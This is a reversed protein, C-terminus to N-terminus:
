ALARANRNIAQHRGLRRLVMDRSPSAPENSDDSPPDDDLISRGRRLAPSTLHRPTVQGIHPDDDSSLLQRGGAPSSDNISMMSDDSGFDLMEPICPSGSGPSGPTEPTESQKRVARYIKVTRVAERKERSLLQKFSPVEVAEMLMTKRKKPTRTPTPTFLSKSTNPKIAASISKTDPMFVDDEQLVLDSENSPSGSTAQTIPVLAHTLRAKKPSKEEIDDHGSLRRKKSPSNPQSHVKVSVPSENEKEVRRRKSPSHGSSSDSTSPRRSPTTPSRILAFRALDPSLNPRPPSSVKTRTRNKPTSLITPSELLPSPGTSSPFGAIINMFPAPASPVTLPSVARIPETQASINDNFPEGLCPRDDNDVNFYEQVKPPWATSPILKGCSAYEWFDNFTDLVAAPKDMRGCFIAELLTSLAEFIDETQPVAQLGLMIAQYLPLVDLAYDDETMTRFEDAIWLVLGEQMTEMLNFVLHVPCSEIFHVVSRIMWMMRAYNRPEPPYSSRFTDTVFEVFSEPVEQADSLSVKMLMMEVVRTLSSFTTDCRGGISEVLQNVVCLADVGYDLAKDIALALLKDWVTLEQGDMDWAHQEGFPVSLLVLAGEWSACKSSWVKVFKSWVVSRAEKTWTWVWPHADVIVQYGWFAKLSDPECSVSLEACFMAWQARAVGEVETWEEENKMLSALLKEAYMDLSDNDLANKAYAWLSRMMNLRKGPSWRSQQKPRSTDFVARQSGSKSSEPTAEARLERDDRLHYRNGKRRDLEGECIARGAKLLCTWTEEIVDLHNEINEGVSVARKWLSFFEDLVEVTLEEKTLPRVDNIGPCQNLIPRVTKQLSEFDNLLLGGDTHFLKDPLLQVSHWGAPLTELSVLQSIILMADKFESNKSLMNGLVVFTRRLGDDGTESGVCAAVTSVGSGMGVVSQVVKWLAARLSDGQKPSGSPSSQPSDETESEGEPDSPLQPQYYAWTVCRWVVCALARVSSKKHRMPLALLTHIIRSLRIDTYLASGLLVICNALVSLAWVPGQAVHIPDPANLTTRLTRCIPSENPVAKTPSTKSPSPKAPSVTTLFSAIHSSIRTHIEYSHPLNISGLVLGGLANCAQVRLSVTPALLNNLISPLLKVFVPIFTSPQYVSLEHVAKLGDNASGRKGEKGLEGDIGRLLSFAIRSSAPALVEEPLRQCQIVLISIACTKRANPTPLSDALPIALVQTLINKLQTVTFIEYVAPLTFILNLLRLVSQTITCLDRGYKAQEATMCKKKRPSNTPSPLLVPCDKPQNENVMPDVLARRVDRDISRYIADRNEKLPELLPCSSDTEETVSPRLRATLVSYGAILDSLKSDPSIIQSVPTKLYSSDHLPNNPEPTVERQEVDIFPLIPQSTKKLISRAPPKRSASCTAPFQPPSSLSHYQNQQSWVVSRASGPLRNEKERHSTKPPTPLSM